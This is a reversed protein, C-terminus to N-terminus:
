KLILNLSNRLSVMEKCADSMAVYEAQCTSLAVYSQKHTQWVVSDGFLKIVFGSTTLSNKCDAFSADSYGEMENSKGLFKLGMNRTGKLYRFVRKVMNWVDGTPNIQHRSLVNVAYSIDSRTVNALYLSSGVAERYPYNNNTMTKVLTEDDCSEERDRRMRNTVQQTVMPTKQSHMESFGFKHLMKDIYESQTLSIEQNERNRKVTIGLFSKPEGLDSMEIEDSLKAKIKNLQDVDNSALLM